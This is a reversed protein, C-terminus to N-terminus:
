NLISYMPCRYRGGLRFIAHSYTGSEETPYQFHFHGSDESDKWFQMKTKDNITLTCNNQLISAEPFLNRIDTKANEILKDVTDRSRFDCRVLKMRRKYNVM